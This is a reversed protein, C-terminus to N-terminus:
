RSAGRREGDLGEEGAHGAGAEGQDGGREKGPEDTFMMTLEPSRSGGDDSPDDDDDGDGDDGGAALGVPPPTRIGMAEESYDRSVAPPHHNELGTAVHPAARVPISVQLRPTRQEYRRGGGGGAGTKEAETGRAAGADGSGFAPPPTAPTAALASQDQPSDLAGGFLGWTRALVAFEASIIAPYYM